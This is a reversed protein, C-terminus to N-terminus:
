NIHLQLISHIHIIHMTQSSITVQTSYSSQEGNANSQLGGSIAVSSLKKKGLSYLKRM